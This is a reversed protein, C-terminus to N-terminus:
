RTGEVMGDIFQRSMMVFLIIIPIAAITLGAFLLAWETRFEAMVTSLGLPLTRKGESRIMVLPFFFENWISVATVIAVTGLAPRMLPLFVSRYIRGWGAGDMLAAEEIDRPVALAFGYLVFVSFSLREAAHIIVLGTLTDLLGAGRMMEFIPIVAFRLPVMLGILFGIVIIKNWPFDFRAIYFALMSAVLLLLAVSCTTVVISNLLYGSFNAREWIDAYNEVRVSSPLGIPRNLVEADSKMSNMFMLAVPALQVVAFLVLIAYGLMRSPHVRRRPRTVPPTRTAQATTSSASM